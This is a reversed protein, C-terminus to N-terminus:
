FNLVFYCVLALVIAEKGPLLHYVLFFDIRIHWHTILLETEVGVRFENLLGVPISDRLARVCALLQMQRLVGLWWCSLGDFWIRWTNSLVLAIRVFAILLVQPLTALFHAWYCWYVQLCARPLLSWGLAISSPGLSVGRMAWVLGFLHYLCVHVLFLVECDPLILTGFHYWILPLCRGRRLRHRRWIQSWDWFNWYVICGPLRTILLNAFTEPVNILLSFCRVFHFQFGDLFHVCCRPDLYSRVVFSHRKEFRLLGVCLLRLKWLGQLPHTQGSLVCLRIMGNLVLLAHWDELRVLGLSILVLSYLLYFELIYVSSRKRIILM